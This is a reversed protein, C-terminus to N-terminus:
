RSLPVRQLPSIGLLPLLRQEIQSHASNGDRSQKPVVRVVLNQKVAIRNRM